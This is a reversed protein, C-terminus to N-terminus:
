TMARLLTDLATLTFTRACALTVPPRLTAAARQRLAPPDILHPPRRAALFSLM